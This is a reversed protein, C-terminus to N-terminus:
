HCDGTAQLGCHRRMDNSYMYMTYM